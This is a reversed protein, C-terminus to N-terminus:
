GVRPRAIVTFFSPQEDYAGADDYDLLESRLRGPRASPARSRGTAANRAAAEM